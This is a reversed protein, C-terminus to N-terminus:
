AVDLRAVQRHSGIALDILQLLAIAQSKLLVYVGRGMLKLMVGGMM